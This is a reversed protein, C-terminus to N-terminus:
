HFKTTRLLDIIRKNSMRISDEKLIQISSENLYEVVSLKLSKSAFLVNRLDNITLYGLIKNLSQKPLDDIRM